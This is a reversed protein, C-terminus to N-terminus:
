KVKQGRLREIRRDIATRLLDRIRFPKLSITLWALLTLRALRLSLFPGLLKVVFRTSRTDPAMADLLRRDVPAANLALRASGFQWRRQFLESYWPPFHPDMEIWKPAAVLAEVARRQDLATSRSYGTAHIFWRSVPTPEFWMGKALAIKRALLGDSFSGAEAMFGGKEVVSRTRFVTSGTHIFNDARELLRVVGEPSIPGAKRLPRVVPRWGIPEETKGDILITEGCFMGVSPTTELVRLATEFFGSLIEDDAAAFYIYRGKATQLGRQLTLLAGINKDNFLIILQPYSAQQSLIVDRSDDTSADDIVILEDPPCSQKLIADIARPLFRAHNFNPLVVTLRPAAFIGPDAGTLM